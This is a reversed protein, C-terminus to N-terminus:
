NDFSWDQLQSHFLVLTKLNPLDKTLGEQLHVLPNGKINLIELNPLGSFDLVNFQTIGQNPVAIRTVLALDDLTIQDSTRDYLKTTKPSEHNAIQQAHELAGDSQVGCLTSDRRLSSPSLRQRPVARVPGTTGDDCGIQLLDRM